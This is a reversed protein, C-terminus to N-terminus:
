TEDRPATDALFHEAGAFDILYGGVMEVQWKEPLVKQFKSLRYDPVRAFLSRRVEPDDWLGPARLADLVREVEKFALGDGMIKVAFNDPVVKWGANWELAYKLTQNVRGGAFTWWTLVDGDFHMASRGRGLLPGLEARWDALSAKARADLFGYAEDSALVARMEQCVERGLFQPVFGGWSQKQGRPAPKVRVTREGHNVSIVLWARGGLLFSSM